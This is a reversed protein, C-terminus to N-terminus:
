KEYWQAFKKIASDEKLTQHKAFDDESFEALTKDFCQPIFIYWLDSWKKHSHKGRISSSLTGSSKSEFFEMHIGDYYALCSRFECEKDAKDEMLKLIGEIGITDLAHNVYARPFGNLEKIFFGADLAICPENVINYAQIVKEKAIERIDDSRPEILEAEYPILKTTTLYEQASAVKGQNTTVFIIEKM